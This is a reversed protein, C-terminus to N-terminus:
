GKWLQIEIVESLMLFKATWINTERIPCITIEVLDTKLISRVTSNQDYSELKLQFVGFIVSSTTITVKDPNGPM